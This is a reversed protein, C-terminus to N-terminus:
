GRRITIGEGRAMERDAKDDVVTEMSTYVERETTMPGRWKTRGDRGSPTIEAIDAERKFGVLSLPISNKCVTRTGM